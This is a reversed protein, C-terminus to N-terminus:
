NFLVSMQFEDMKSQWSKRIHMIQSTHVPEKTKWGRPTCAFLVFKCILRLYYVVTVQIKPFQLSNFSSFVTNLQQRLSLLLEIWFVINWLQNSSNPSLQWGSQSGSYSDTKSGFAPWFIINPPSRQFHAESVHLLTLDHVRRGSALLLLMAVHRSVQFFSARDPPNSVIWQCLHDINWIKREEKRPYSALIGKIMRSVAPHSSTALSLEPSIWTCIVSKHLKISAPSLNLSSRLFALFRAVDAPSPRSPNISQSEAWEVWRRWPQRYTKLTSPRWAGKLLGIEGSSWSNVLTAWGTNELSGASYRSCKTPPTGLVPRSAGTTVNEIQNPCGLGESQDRVELINEEVATCSPPVCGVLVGAEKAGTSHSAATPVGVGTQLEMASCFCGRAPSSPRTPRADRLMSGSGVAPIRFPRYVPPGVEQFNPKNCGTVPAVRTPKQKAFPLRGFHQLDRTYTSSKNHVQPLSGVLTPSLNRPPTRAISSMRTKQDTGCSRRQRDVSHNLSEPLSSSADRDGMQSCFTGPPQHALGERRTVVETLRRQVGRHFSGHGLRLRRNVLRDSESSIRLPCRRRFAKDVLRLGGKGGPFDTKPTPTKRPPSIQRCDTPSSPSATGFPGHVSCFEAARCDKTTHSSVMNPSRVASPHDSIHKRAEKNPPQRVPISHGLSARPLDEKSFPLDRVEPFQSAM